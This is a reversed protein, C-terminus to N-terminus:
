TLYDILLGSCVLLIGILFNVQKDNIKTKELLFIPIGISALFQISNFLNNEKLITIQPYYQYIGSVLGFIFLMM